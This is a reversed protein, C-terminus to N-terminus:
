LTSIKKTETKYLTPAQTFSVAAVFGKYFIGIYIAFLGLKIGDREPYHKKSASVLSTCTDPCSTSLLGM